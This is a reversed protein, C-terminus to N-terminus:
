LGEDKSDDNGLGLTFTVRFPVTEEVWFEVVFDGVRARRMELQGQAPAGLPRLSVRLQTGVPRGGISHHGGRRGTNPAHFLTPQRGHRHLAASKHAPGNRDRINKILSYTSFTARLCSREVTLLLLCCVCM